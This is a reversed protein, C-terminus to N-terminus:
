SNTLYTIETSLQSALRAVAPDASTLDAAALELAHARWPADAAYILNFALRLGAYRMWGQGAHLDDVLARAFPCHRLLRHCLIDAEEADQLTAAWELAEAATMEERPMVMPALLRSERTTANAWLQRALAADAGTAQAVEVLQPLNLGFIVRHPDGARRLRDAIVGNRLAFMRRKVNQMPGFREDTERIEM